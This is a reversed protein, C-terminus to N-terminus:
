SSALTQTFSKPEGCCSMDVGFRRKSTTRFKHIVGDLIHTLKTLSQYIFVFLAGKQEFGPVMRKQIASTQAVHWKMQTLSSFRIAKVM